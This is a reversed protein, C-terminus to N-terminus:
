EVELLKEETAALATELNRSNRAALFLRAWFLGEKLTLSVGVESLARPRCAPYGLTVYALIVNRNNHLDHPTM